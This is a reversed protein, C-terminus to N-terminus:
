PRWLRLCRRGMRQTIFLLGPVPTTLIKRYILWRESVESRRRHKRLTPSVSRVAAEISTTVSDSSAEEPPHPTRYM